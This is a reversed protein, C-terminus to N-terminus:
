VREHTGQPSRDPLPEAARRVEFRHAPTPPPPPYSSPLPVVCWGEAMWWAAEGAGVLHEALLRIGMYRPPLSACEAPLVCTNCGRVGRGEGEGGGGGSIMYGGTLSDNDRLDWGGSIVLQNGLTAYCANRRTTNSSHIPSSTSRSSPPVTSRSLIHACESTWRATPGNGDQATLNTTTDWRNARADWVYTGRFREIGDASLPAGREVGGFLLLRGQPSCGSLLCWTM